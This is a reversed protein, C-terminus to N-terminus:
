KQYIFIFFNYCKTVNIQNKLQLFPSGFKVTNM